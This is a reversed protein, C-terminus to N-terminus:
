RSKFGHFVPTISHQFIPSASQSRNKKYGKQIQQIKDVFFMKNEKLVFFYWPAAVTTEPFNFPPEL